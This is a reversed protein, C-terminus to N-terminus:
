NYQVTFKFRSCHSLFDMDGGIPELQLEKYAELMVDYWAIGCEKVLQRECTNLWLQIRWFKNKNQVYVGCVYKASDAFSEGVLAMATYKWLANITGDGCKFTIRGGFRNGADESIPSINKRFLLYGSHVAAAFANTPLKIAQIVGWFQPVSSVKAFKVCANIFSQNPNIRTGDLIYFQWEEPTPYMSDPNNEENKEENKELQTDLHKEVSKRKLSAEPKEREKEEDESVKMPEDDTTQEDTHSDLEMKSESHAM